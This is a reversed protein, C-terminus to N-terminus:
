RTDAEDLPEVNRGHDTFAVGARLRITLLPTKEDPAGITRVRHSVENM